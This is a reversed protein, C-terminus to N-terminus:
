SERGRSLGTVFTTAVKTIKIVKIGIKKACRSEAVEDSVSPSVFYCTIAVLFCDGVCNSITEKIIAFPNGSGEQGVDQQKFGFMRSVMLFLFGYSAFM